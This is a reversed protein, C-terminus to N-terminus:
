TTRGFRAQRTEIHSTDELIGAVSPLLQRQTFGELLRMITHGYRIPEGATLRSLALADAATEQDARMRGFALWVLPNFWHLVQVLSVVWGMAIDHRKLHALEHLFVYELDDMGIAEVLGQPLLIRPRLFGFLVPTKIKDTVVVAVITQIRMQMKCDELLDLIRQDTVPRESRVARWLRFSRILIYGALVIAGVLWLWPLMSAVFGVVRVAKLWLGSSAGDSSAGKGM